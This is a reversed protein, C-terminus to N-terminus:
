FVTSESECYIDNRIGSNEEHNGHFIESNEESEERNGQAKKKMNVDTQVIAPQPATKMPIRGAKEEMFSIEEPTKVDENYIEEIDIGKKRIAYLLRMIKADKDRTEVLSDRQKKLSHRLKANEKIVEQLSDLGFDQIEYRDSFFENFLAQNRSIKENEKVLIAINGKLLEIEQDNERLKANQELLFERLKLFQDVIKSIPMEIAFRLNKLFNRLKEDIGASEDLFELLKTMYSTLIESESQLAQQNKLIFAELGREVRQLNSFFERNESNKAVKESSNSTQKRSNSPDKLNEASKGMVQSSRSFSANEFSKELVKKSLKTKLKRFLSSFDQKNSTKHSVSSFNNPNSAFTNPNRANKGNNTSLNAFNAPNGVNTAHTPRDIVYRDTSYNTKKPKPDKKLPSPSTKLPLNKSKQENSIHINNKYSDINIFNNYQQITFSSSNINESLNHLNRKNQQSKKSNAAAKNSHTSM